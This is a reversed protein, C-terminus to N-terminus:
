NQLCFNKVNIPLNNFKVGGRYDIRQKCRELRCRPIRLNSQNRTNFELQNQSFVITQHGINHINRYVFILAQCEYLGYIPLITKSVDNYLSITPYTLPLGYLIKLAKNQMRQLSRMAACNKNFAYVIALYNLHSHILAQYIMLKVKMSLKNKFKYLIGVAPAIKKKLDKIHERVWQHWLGNKLNKVIRWQKRLCMLRPEYPAPTQTSNACGLLFHNPTLPDPDEPTVALHTLPRSNIMNEAEILFSQLTELRPSHERLMAYLAKKVWQVLREWAGGESPNAPTNFKWQIGLARRNIFNRICLLCSDSSLDPAIELHIARITLCTFLAIWRKERQRRITVNIPGFYDVGTHTFARIYPTVRDIPLPAMQPQRPKARRIRCVQCRSQISNLLRRISPVWFKLRVESIVTSMNIHCFKVHYSEVLLRTFCHQNPLIIPNKSQISLSPANQIRGSVRLLGDEGIRPNLMKIKSDKGVHGQQGIDAIEESFVESQIRRCLYMEAWANEEVSLEGKILGINKIKRYLNQIYRHVWAMTRKLRSYKSFRNIDPIISCVQRAVLFVFKSRLESNTSDEYNEMNSETPWQSEDLKLFDPGNKWRGDAEYKIPYKARTAEDAPNKTGPCWNWNDMGSGELIEAVRNAVYQKYKRHDSNIWRIVTHSDTWFYIKNINKTHNSIILDKMRVGMVAAQLELKPITHYITPACSSKGMVFIVKIEDVSVVRWYAVTAMAEESADAFIHLDVKCKLFENFYCRSITFQELRKLEMLWLKWHNYIEIPLEEDWEIGAKWVRQMLVKSTIMFDCLFGFPDYISMNLSLMERKSPVKAFELISREVKHFNLRFCFIDVNPLWHIGLIREINDKSLFERSDDIGSASQGCSELVKESNSIMNRLEFGGAGHIKIVDKVVQVAENETQFCDVYDDVYHRELIANVARPPPKLYKKANMNKVFQTIAPSCTAGFIMREM